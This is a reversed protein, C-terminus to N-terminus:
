HQYISLFSNLDNMDGLFTYKNLQNINFFAEM